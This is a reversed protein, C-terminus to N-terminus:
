RVSVEKNCRDCWLDAALVNKGLLKGCEDCRTEGILAVPQPRDGNPSPTEIEPPPPPPEPAEGIEEVPMADANSPVYFTGDKVNPDLGVAERSEELSVMGALLDKRWRDHLKDTEEELARIDSLDFMVEDIQGFDPVISLNLVDDLDSLLPTMTLDWLVAWDQRKNAYSSASEGLLIGLISAPIGFAMAIRAEGVMNIEKPLADRLGRDLGLRTYTSETNDLILMEHIGGPGGFREKFRQRIRDKTDDAMTGKVTLISGPGVGGTEFFSRLFGKQYEDIDVRGAIPMLQPMGYYDNLPNRTRFHM